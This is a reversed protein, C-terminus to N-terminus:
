SPIIVSYFVGFGSNEYGRIIRSIKSSECDKDSYQDPCIKFTCLIYVYKLNKFGKLDSLNLTTNFDNENQIRICLLEAGNFLPNRANLLNLSTIDTNIRVPMQEDVPQLEGNHLYVTPHLDSVLGKLYHAEKIQSADSSKEMESLKSGFEEIAQAFISASFFTFSIITFFCNLIWRNIINKTEPSKSPLVVPLFISTKM